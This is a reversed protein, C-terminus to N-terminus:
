PLASSPPLCKMNHYNSDYSPLKRATSRARATNHKTFATLETSNVDSASMQGCTYYQAKLPHSTESPINRLISNFPSICLDYIYICYMELCICTPEREVLSNSCSGLFVSVAWLRWFIGWLPRPIMFIDCYADLMCYLDSGDNYECYINWSDLSSM